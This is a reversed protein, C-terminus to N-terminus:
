DDDDDGGGDTNDNTLSLSVAPTLWNLQTSPKRKLSCTDFNSDMLLEDMMEDHLAATTPPLSTTVHRQRCHPWAGM